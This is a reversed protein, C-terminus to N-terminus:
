TRSPVGADAADPARERHVEDRAWRWWVFAAFAAFVWWELAYLLNRLATTGSPEPLSDPTVPELGAEVGGNKSGGTDTGGDQTSLDRAIVYAGYLDQDVRQIADAIRLEALVDDTPDPDQLGSGEPPQLWGTLDVRGQPPQPAQAPEPTWGRVVLLAPRDACDSECVALPTVVWFGTRGELQRDRVLFTAEPVWQGSVEVPQGVADGPYPDDASMVTSLEVARAGALDAAEAERAAEWASLQWLGLAVAAGTAVVGLLHLALLRPAFLVRLVDRVRV